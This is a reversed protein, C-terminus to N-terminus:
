RCSESPAPACETVSEGLEVVGRVPLRQGAFLAGLVVKEREDHEALCEAHWVGGGIVRHLEHWVEVFIEM